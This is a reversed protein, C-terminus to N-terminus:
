KPISFQWIGINTFYEILHMIVWSSLMVVLGIVAFTIKKMSQAIKQSDGGSTIYSFGSSVIFFFAVLGAIRIVVNLLLRVIAEIGTLTAVNCNACIVNGASDKVDQLYETGPTWQARAEPHCFVLLGIIFLVFALARNKVKRM